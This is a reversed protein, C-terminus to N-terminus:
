FALGAGGAMFWGEIAVTSRGDVSALLGTARGAELAVVAALHASVALRAETLAGISAYVDLANRRVVDTV